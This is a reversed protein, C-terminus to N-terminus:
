AVGQSISVIDKAAVEFYDLLGNMGESKWVQYEKKTVFIALLPHLRCGEYELGEALARLVPSVRINCVFVGVIGYATLYSMDFRVVHGEHVDGRADVEDLHSIVRSVEQPNADSVTLYMHGDRRPLSFVVHASDKPDPQILGVFNSEDEDAWETFKFSDANVCEMVQVATWHQLRSALGGLKDSRSM